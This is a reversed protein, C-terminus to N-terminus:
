LLGLGKFSSPGTRGVIIHDHLAIGVAEAARAVSRTM